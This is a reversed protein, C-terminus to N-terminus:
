GLFTCALTSINLLAKVERTQWGGIHERTELNSIFDVVLGEGLYLTTPVLKQLWQRFSCYSM